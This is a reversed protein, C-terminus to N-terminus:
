NYYKKGGAGPLPTNPDFEPRGGRRVPEAAQYQREDTRTIKKQAYLGELVFDVAAARAAPPDGARSGAGELLGDLGRTKALERGVGARSPALGAPL